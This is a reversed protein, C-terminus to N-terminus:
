LNEVARVARESLLQPSTWYGAWPDTRLRGLRERITVLTWRQPPHRLDDWRIPVSVPASPRARPSYACISTNTRNNRLYDLLIKEERGRKSFVTTYLGPDARVIVESVARSFRLCHSWDQVPKLPVVVHLGQGGTTKVWSALGLTDLVQRLLRAAEAIAQWTMAPGPDLDWVIRNPREIDDATSNWTHIEVVGMQALAVVAAASDAVLYEGVKTKEQIKVRRLATPGWAKAHRLYRCPGAVGEPCHVLTLPRGKVHPVIWRGIAEYYRALELKSVDLEPFIVRDPHSLPIGAVVPRAPRQQSRMERSEAEARVEALLCTAAALEQPEPNAIKM